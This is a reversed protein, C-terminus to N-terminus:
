NVRLSQTPHPQEDQPGDARNPVQLLEIHSWIVECKKLDGWINEKRRPM